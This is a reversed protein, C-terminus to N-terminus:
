EDDVPVEITESQVCLRKNVNEWLDLQRKKAVGGDAHTPGLLEENLAWGLFSKKLLHNNVVKTAKEEWLADDMANSMLTPLDWKRASWPLTKQELRQFMTREYYKWIDSFKLLLLDRKRGPELPTLEALEVMTECIKRARELKETEPIKACIAFAMKYATEFTYSGPSGELEVYEYLEAWIESLFNEAETWGIITVVNLDM